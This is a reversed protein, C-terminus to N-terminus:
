EHKGITVVMEDSTTAYQGAKLRLANARVGAHQHGRDGIFDGRPREPDRDCEPSSKARQGQADNQVRDEAVGIRADGRQVPVQKFHELDRRREREVHRRQAMRRRPAADPAAEEGIAFSDVGDELVEDQLTGMAASVVASQQTHEDAGTVDRTTRLRDALHAVRDHREYEGSM